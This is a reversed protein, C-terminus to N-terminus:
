IKTLESENIEKELERILNEAFSEDVPKFATPCYENSYPGPGGPSYKYFGLYDRKGFYDITLLEKYHPGQSRLGTDSDTWGKDNVCIVKQGIRFTSM